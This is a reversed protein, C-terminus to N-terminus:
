KIWTNAVQTSEIRNNLAGQVFTGTQTIQGVIVACVIIGVIVLLCATIINEDGYQKSRITIKKFYNKLKKMIYGGLM